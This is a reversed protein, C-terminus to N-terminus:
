SLSEGILSIQPNIFQIMKYLGLLTLQADDLATHRAKVPLDLEKIVADLGLGDTDLVGTMNMFATISMLDIYRRSVLRYFEELYTSGVSSLFTEIFNKDFITNQGVLIGKNQKSCHKSIFLNIQKAVEKAVMAEKDHQKIDIGNIELAKSTVCYTSHKIKWEKFDVIEHNKVVMLAVTLLSHENPNTGGTETDIVILPNNLM